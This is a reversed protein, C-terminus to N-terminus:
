SARGCTHGLLAWSVPILDCDAWRHNTCRVPQTPGYVSLLALVLAKYADLDGAAANLGRASLSVLSPPRGIEQLGMRAKTLAEDRRSM